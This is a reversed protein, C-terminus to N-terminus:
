NIYQLVLQFIRQPCYSFIIYTYIVDSIHIITFVLFYLAIILVDESFFKYEPCRISSFTHNRQITMALKILHHKTNPTFRWKLLIPTTWLVHVVNYITPVVDNSLTLLFINAHHIATICKNCTTIFAKSSLTYLQFIYIKLYGQPFAYEVKCQLLMFIM